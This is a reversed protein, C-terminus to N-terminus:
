LLHHCFPRFIWFLRHFQNEYHISSSEDKTTKDLKFISIVDKPLANTCIDVDLSKIGLLYDRVYGGVLYAEFGSAEIKKLINKIIKDM